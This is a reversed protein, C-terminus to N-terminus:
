QCAILGIAAVAVPSWRILENPIPPSTSIRVPRWACFFTIAEGTTCKPIPSAERASTARIVHGFPTSWDSNSRCASVTIAAPCRRFPEHGHSNAQFPLSIANTM